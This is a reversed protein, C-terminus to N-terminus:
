INAAIEAGVGSTRAAEHVIVCRGTKAVSALISDMDLPKLTAVDIVEAAIGEEALQDAAALTEQLAGGWSVLTVDTGDRLVFCT